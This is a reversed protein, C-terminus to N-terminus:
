YRPFAHLVPNRLHDLNLHIEKAEQCHQIHVHVICIYMCVMCAGTTTGWIYSIDGALERKSNVTYCCLHLRLCYTNIPTSEYTYTFSQNAEIWNSGQLISNRQWKLEHSDPSTLKVTQTCTQLCILQPAEISTEWCIKWNGPLLGTVAFPLPKEVSPNAPTRAFTYVHHQM